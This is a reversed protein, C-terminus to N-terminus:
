CSFDCLLTRQIYPIYVTRLWEWFIFMIYEKEGNKERTPRREATGCARLSGRLFPLPFCLSEKEYLILTRFKACCSLRILSLRAGRWAVSNKEFSDDFM